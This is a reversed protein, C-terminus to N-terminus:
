QPDIYIAKREVKSMTICFSCWDTIERPSSGETSM